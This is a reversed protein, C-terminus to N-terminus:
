GAHHMDGTNFRYPRRFWVTMLIAAVVFAAFTFGGTVEKITELPM